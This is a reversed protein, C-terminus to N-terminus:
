SPVQFLFILFQIVAYVRRSIMLLTSYSTHVYSLFHVINITFLFESIHWHKLQM